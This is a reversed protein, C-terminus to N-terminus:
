NQKRVIKYDDSFRFYHCSDTNGQLFKYVDDEDLNVMCEYCDYQENYTYYACHECSSGAM